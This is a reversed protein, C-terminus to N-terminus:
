LATIQSRSATSRSRIATRIPTTRPRISPSPSTRMSRFLTMREIGEFALTEGDEFTVTGKTAGADNEDASEDIVVDGAGRLDLTDLDTTEDPGNGGVIVDGAGEDSSGVLFTDDGGEGYMMDAGLGGTIIDDGGEGDAVGTAPGTVLDPDLYSTALDSYSVDPHTDIREVFTYTEGLVLPADSVFGVTDNSNLEVAYINIVNGSSDEVSYQYEPTFRGGAGDSSGDLSTFQSLVQDGDGDNFRSDGDNVGVSTPAVNSGLTFTSGEVDSEGTVDNDPFPYDNGGANTVSIDGLEWVLLSHDAGAVETVEVIGSNGQAPTQNGNDGYIIDDGAGGDIVDDGTEGSGGSASGPEVVGADPDNYTTALDAYPVSPHTSV